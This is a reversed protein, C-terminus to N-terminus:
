KDYEEKLKKFIPLARLIQETTVCYSIRVHSPCGFDDGPVLLLDYKKAKESFACADEELAEPFLYFAGEPKVCKYGLKILGDYLLDRNKKYIEIDATVGICKAVVKQFLSPACVYGLARGAGCVAAYVKKAEEMESPVVIYGIREGPLSLSKSYSYCVFTNDYYKTLYPVEVDYAIERYPEDSILYIPHNYEKSKAKLIETLKIITEETYVVGSPNNPTNVIVAKTKENLRKEFEGFDIQFDEIKAPVVVLKGGAAEVFCRYEPFYPAFTIFEDGKDALASFCIHISAAAGVTMYLNNGDFKTGFRKNIDEALTNRVKLDGQASTYSHIDVPNEEELIELIAKKVAEPAPVNPNGISFDYVNEAGVEEARKKGFEFLERIVSRKSGLEYMKESVM